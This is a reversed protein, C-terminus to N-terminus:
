KKHICLYSVADDIYKGINDDIRSRILLDNKCRSCIQLPKHAIDYWRRRKCIICYTKLESFTPIYKIFFLQRRADDIQHQPVTVYIDEADSDEEKQKVIKYCEHCFPKQKESLYDLGCYLCIKLSLFKSWTEDYTKPGSKLRYLQVIDRTRWLSFRSRYKGTLLIEHLKEFDDNTNVNVVEYYGLEKAIELLEKRNPSKKEPKELQEKVKWRIIKKIWEDKNDNVEKKIRDYVMTYNERHKDFRERYKKYEDPVDVKCYLM